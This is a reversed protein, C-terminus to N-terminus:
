KKNILKRQIKRHIIYFIALVILNLISSKISLIFWDLWNNVLIKEFFLKFLINCIYFAVISFILYLGYIKLYDKTSKDFCKKFVLVPKAICIITINSIVTGLIVGNLGIYYVLVISFIFNIIAEAIPLHIDDFFGSGSQFSEILPKTARIFINICILFLTIKPLLFDKGMWLTIFTNALKYMSFSLLIGLFLFMNNIERWKEHIENKENFAIYKGIKPALVSTLITVVTILMQELLLYSSYIAVIELSIFKSIIILDTNFVVMGALKHWFLKKLNNIIEKKIEQTKLMHKAYNKNYLYKFLIYQVIGELIILAIFLYFSKFKMLTYIQLLQILIKTFGQSIKVLKFKQDALFLIHFKLFGYTVVLGLVYLVWYLYIDRKLVNTNNIFFTITPTALLGIGLVYILIKNYMRTITNMIVSIEKYDKNALPKYLAYTSAAAVGMDALNLYSLLQTFLKMIGLNDSGLYSFFCKNLIIQGGGIFFTLFFNLIVETLYSKNIKM